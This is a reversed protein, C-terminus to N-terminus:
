LRPGNGIGNQGKKKGFQFWLAIILLVAGIVTCVGSVTPSLVEGRDLLSIVALFVLDGLLLARATPDFRKGTRAKEDALKEQELQRKIEVTRSRQRKKGRRASM